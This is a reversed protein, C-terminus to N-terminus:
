TSLISPSGIDMMDMWWWVMKQMSTTIFLEFKNLHSRESTTELACSRRSYSTSSVSVTSTARELIKAQFRTKSSQYSQHKCENKFMHQKAWHQICLPSGHHNPCSEPSASDRGVRTSVQVDGVDQHNQHPTNRNSWDEPETPSNEM